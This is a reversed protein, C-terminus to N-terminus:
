RRVMHGYRGRVYKASDTEKESDRGPKGDFRGETAWRELIRAIYKWSRKNLRVAERFASEIWDAPYLKEAEKMEEVIIPTLMGINQEYLAFINPRSSIDATEVKRVVFGPLQMEGRQIKTIFNRETEANLLYADEPKGDQQIDLHLLIGHGVALTLARGLAEERQGPEKAVGSMLVSDALLEGRTVFRPFGQRRSLLWLIHLATKLETIDEIHPMVMTFFQNPVPTVEAKGVFGAFPKESM